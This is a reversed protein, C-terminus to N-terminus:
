SVERPSKVKTEKERENEKQREKRETVSDNLGRM